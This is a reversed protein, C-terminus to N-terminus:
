DITLIYNKYKYLAFEMNMFYQRIQPGKTSNTALCIKKFTEPTIFLTEANHGGSGTSKKIKEIKYDINLIYNKKITAVYKQKISIQLWKRLIESDIVLDNDLTDENIFTMFESLFTSDITSDKLLSTKLDIGLHKAMDADKDNFVPKEIIKLQDFYNTVFEIASSFKIINKTINDNIISKEKKTGLKYGSSTDDLTYKIKPSEPVSENVHTPNFSSERVTDDRSLLINTADHNICDNIPKINIESLKIDYIEAIETTIEESKVVEIIDEKIKIMNYIDNIM